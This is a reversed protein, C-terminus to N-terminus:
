PVDAFRKIATLAPIVACGIDDPLSIRACANVGVVHVGAALASAVGGASDEFALCAEPPLGALRAAALYPAPDPKHAVGDDGAVCGTFTGYPTAALVREALSRSSGTVLISPISFEHLRQLLDYAGPAWPVADRMPKAEATEHRTGSFGADAEFIEARGDYGIAGSSEAREAYEDYMVHMDEVLEQILREAPLGVGAQRLIRACTPLSAGTMRLSLEDTWAIGHRTACRREAEVWMPDTDALTGDLDWLVARWALYDPESQIACAKHGALCDRGDDELHGESRQTGNATVANM